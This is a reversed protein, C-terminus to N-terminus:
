AHAIARSVEKCPVRLSDYAILATHANRAFRSYMEAVLEHDGPTTEPEDQVLVVFRPQRAYRMRHRCEGTSTDVYPLVTPLLKETARKLLASTFGMRLPSAFVVIDAHVYARLLREHDDPAVCVGPTQLWCGFCGTCRRLDMDRLVQTSVACGEDRLSSDLEAVYTEFPRNGADSNGNLILVKM